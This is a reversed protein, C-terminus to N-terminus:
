IIGGSLSIKPSFLGREDKIVRWNTYSFQVSVEVLGDADNSLEISSITTPFADVLEVSYISAGLLDFDISLPGLDFGVRMIPKRLQHIKIPSVYDNKYAVTGRRLPNKTVGLEETKRKENEISEPTKETDASIEKSKLTADSLREEGIMVRRWSDFYKKIGYDVQIRDTPSDDYFIQLFDAGSVYQGYGRPSTYKVLYNTDRIPNHTMVTNPDVRGTNRVERAIQSLADRANSNMEAKNSVSDYAKSFNQYSFFIAAISIMSIVMAVLVETLTFGKQNKTIM